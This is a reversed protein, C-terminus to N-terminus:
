RFPPQFDPGVVGGRIMLVREAARAGAALALAPTAGRGLAVLTGAAFADGAGTPDVVTVPGASVQVSVGDLLGIAGASGLTVVVNPALHGLKTLATEPSGALRNAEEENLFLLDWPRSRGDRLLDMERPDFCASVSIKAGARRAEVLAAEARRAERLGGVHVYRSPPLPPVDDLAQPDVASVFARDAPTSRVLSIAADPTAPWPVQEIGLARTAADIAWDTLGAGRPACLKVKAGLAKAVSASNLAGGLGVPISPVFLEEGGRPWRELEPFFLEFFVLGVVTLDEM